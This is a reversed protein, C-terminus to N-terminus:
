ARPSPDLPTPWLDKRPQYIAEAFARQDEISLCVIQAGEITRHAAKPKKTTM